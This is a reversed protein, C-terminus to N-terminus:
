TARLQSRLLKNGIREVGAGSRAEVACAVECTVQWVPVDLEQTSDIVLDLYTTETDLQTLNLGHKALVRRHEFRDHERAGLCAALLPQYSIQVAFLPVLRTLALPPPVQRLPQRLVHNWCM